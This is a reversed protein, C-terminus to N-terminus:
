AAWPPPSSASCAPSTGPLRSSPMPPQPSPLQPRSPSLSPLSRQKSRATSCPRARLRQEARLASPQLSRDTGCAPLPSFLLLLLLLCQLLRAPPLLASLLRSTRPHPLFLRLLLFRLLLPSRLPAALMLLHPQLPSSGHAAAPRQTCPLRCFRLWTPQRQRATLPLPLSHCSPPALLLLPCSLWHPPPPPRHHSPPLSLASSGSGDM